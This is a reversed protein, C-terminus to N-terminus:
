VDVCNHCCPIQPLCCTIHNQFFSYDYMYSMEMHNSVKMAGVTPIEIEFQCIQM